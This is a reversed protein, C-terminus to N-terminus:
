SIGGGGFDLIILPNQGCDIEADMLTIVTKNQKNIHHAVNIAKSINFLEQTELLFQVQDCHSVRKDFFTSSTGSYEQSM